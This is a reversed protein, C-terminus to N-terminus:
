EAPRKKFVKEGIAEQSEIEETSCTSALASYSFRATNVEYMIFMIPLTCEYPAIPMLRCTAVGPGGLTASPPILDSCYRTNPTALTECNPWAEIGDTIGLLFRYIDRCIYSDAETSNHYVDALMAEGVAAVRIPWGYHTFKVTTQENIRLQMNSDIQGPKAQGGSVRWKNTLMDLQSQITTHDHQYLAIIADKHLDLYKPAAIATLIGLLIIVLVLEILTFASFSRM